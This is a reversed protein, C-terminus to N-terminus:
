RARITEAIEYAIDPKGEESLSEAVQACAERESAVMDPGCPDQHYVCWKRLSTSLIHEAEVKTM